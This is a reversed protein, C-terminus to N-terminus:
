SGSPWRRIAGNHPHWYPREDRPLQEFLRESIIYEIGTLNANRTNGDFFWPRELV